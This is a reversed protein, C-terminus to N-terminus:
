AARATGKVHCCLVNVGDVYLKRREGQGKREEKYLVDAAVLVDCGQLSGDISDGWNLAAVTPQHPLRRDNIQAELLRVLDRRDTLCVRAGRCALTLGVIGTGAGLEVCNVDRFDGDERAFHRAMALGAPWVVAGVAEGPCDLVHLHGVVGGVWVSRRRRRLRRRREMHCSRLLENM